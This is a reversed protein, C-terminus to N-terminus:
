NGLIFFRENVLFLIEGLPIRFKTFIRIGFNYFKVNDVLLIFSEPNFANNYNLKDLKLTNANFYFLRVFIEISIKDLNCKGCRYINDKLLYIIIKPELM